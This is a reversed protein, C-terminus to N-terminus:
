GLGTLIIIDGGGRKKSFGFFRVDHWAYCVTGYFQVFPARTQQATVVLVPISPNSEWYKCLSCSIYKLYINM